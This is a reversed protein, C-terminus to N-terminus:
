DPRLYKLGQLTHFQDKVGAVDATATYEVFEARDRRNTRHKAVGVDRAIRVEVCCDIEHYVANRNVNRVPVLEAARRGGPEDVAIARVDDHVAVRV